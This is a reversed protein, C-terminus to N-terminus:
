LHVYSMIWNDSGLRTVGTDGSTGRNFTCYERIINRDGIELRTPEGAYKKDQPAGGLANFAGIRNDRGIRMPGELVTHPGIATGDGIEVNAGVISYPGIAVNAGLRADRDVIATPHILVSM